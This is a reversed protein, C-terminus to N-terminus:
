FCVHAFHGSASSVEGEKGNLGRLAPSKSFTIWFLSYIPNNQKGKRNSNLDHQFLNQKQDPCNQLFQRTPVSIQELHMEETMHDYFSTQNLVM